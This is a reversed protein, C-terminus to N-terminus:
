DGEGETNTVTCTKQDGAAITGTCDASFSVDFGKLPTEHVQYPGVGLTVLTGTSGPFSPPTPNNGTVTITFDKLPPPCNDEKDDKCVVKKIVLLTGTGPPTVQSGESVCTAGPHTCILNECEQDVATDFGSASGKNKCEEITVTNGNKSNQEQGGKNKQQYAFASQASTAAFTGGVVLTAAIFIAAIALTTTKTNNM